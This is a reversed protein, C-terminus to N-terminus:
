LNVNFVFREKPCHQTFVSLALLRRNYLEDGPKHIYVNMLYFCYEKTYLIPPLLLQIYIERNILIFGVSKVAWIYNM